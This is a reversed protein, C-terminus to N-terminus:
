FNFFFCLSELEEEADFDNDNEDDMAVGESTVCAKKMLSDSELQNKDTAICSIM